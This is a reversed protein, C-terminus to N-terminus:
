EEEIVLLVVAEPIDRFPSNADDPNLSRGCAFQVIVRAGEALTCEAGAAIVTARRCNEAVIERKVSQIDHSHDVGRYHMSDTALDTEIIEDGVPCPGDLAEMTRGCRSCVRIFDEDPLWISGIKVVPDDLRIFLRGRLPTIHIM